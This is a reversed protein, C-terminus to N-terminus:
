RFNWEYINEFVDNPNATINDEFENSVAMYGQRYCLPVFPMDENFAAIFANIDTKGSQMSKYASICNLSKNIGSGAGTADTFFDSLSMNESLKIEGIYLDFNGKRIAKRLDKASVKEIVVEIGIAKLKTQIFEATSIKFRNNKNVLLKLQVTKGDKTRVTDTDGAYTYGNKDLQQTLELPSYTVTKVDADKLASWVPNFPTEAVSAYGQFANEAIDQKDVAYSIIKRFTSDSLFSKSSGNMGLFVLNNLAVTRTIATIREAQCDSLDSYMFSINGIQLASSDKTNDKIDYLEITKIAAKEGSIHNKNYKLQGSSYTYRGTGTPNDDEGQGYRVIPFTLCSEAYIDSTELKFRVRDSDLATASSFNELQASYYKSEKAANFSHVVDSATVAKGDSFIASDSISVTVYEGENESSEALMKVPSYSEDLKFLGDYLLKSINENMLSDAKYPNLSDAASYPLVLVENKVTQQTDQVIEDEALTTEEQSETTTDTQNDSCATFTGTLMILVLIVCLFRKM